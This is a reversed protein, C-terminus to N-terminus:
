LKKIVGKTVNVAGPFAEKRVSETVPNKSGKVWQDSAGVMFSIVQTHIM